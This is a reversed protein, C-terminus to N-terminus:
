NIIKVKKLWNNLQLQNSVTVPFWCSGHIKDKRLEYVNLGGKIKLWGLQKNKRLVGLREKLWSRNKEEPSDAYKKLLGILEVDIRDNKELLDDLVATLMKEEPFHISTLNSYLFLHKFEFDKLLKRAHPLLDGSSLCERYGTIFVAPIDIGLQLYAEIKHHGDLIYNHSDEFSDPAHNNFVVAKPRAGNEILHIYYRIREENLREEPETFFYDTSYPYFQGFFRENEPTNDSYIRDCYKHFDACRVAIEGTNVTYEGNEFLNLFSVICEQIEEQTGDILVKDLQRTLRMREEHPYSSMAYYEGVSGRCDPWNVVLPDKVMLCDAFGDSVIRIIGQGETM